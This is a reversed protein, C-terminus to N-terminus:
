SDTVDLNLSLAEIDQALKQSIQIVPYPFLYEKKLEEESFDMTGCRNPSYGSAMVGLCKRDIRLEFLLEKLLEKPKKSLNAM